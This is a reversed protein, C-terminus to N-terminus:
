LKEIQKRDALTDTKQKQKQKLDLLQESYQYLKDLYSNQTSTGM